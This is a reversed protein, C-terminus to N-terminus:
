RTSGQSCAGHVANYAARLARADSLAHHREVGDAAFSASWSAEMAAVADPQGILYGIHTPTLPDKLRSWLGASELAAQLLDYDAHYDYHVDISEANLGILWEGVLRGLEAETKVSHPMLGFQPVVTDLVFTAAGALLDADSVEVYLERGDDVVLGISLLRPSELSHFECDLWAGISHVDAM